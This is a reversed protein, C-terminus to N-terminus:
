SPVLARPKAASSAPASASCRRAAPAGASDATVPPGERSSLAASGTARLGGSARLLEDGQRDGLPGGDSSAL